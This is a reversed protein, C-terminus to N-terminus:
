CGDGQQNGSWNYISLSFNGWDGASDFALTSSGAGFDIIADSTLTLTGLKTSDTDGQSFGNLDFKGSGGLSMNAGGKIQNAAAFLLTGSNNIVVSSTGGLAKNTGAGAAELTGESVTTTGTFSNNGSLTVTDATTKNLGNTGALTAGVSGNRLDFNGGNNTITGNNVRGGATLAGLTNSVSKDGLDLTGDSVTVSGSGLTGAGSLALTGNTITTGGSYTNNGTLNLRGPGSMTLSLSGSGGNVLTGAFTDIGSTNGTLTSAGAAGNQVTLTSPGSLTALTRDAGNTGLRTISLSFDDVALGDDSGAVNLDNWRIYFSTGSGIGSSSLTVGADLTASNDLANGDLNRATGTKVPATFDLGDVDSWTGTSLSTANTSYQFDLRDAAGGRNTEGGFRWQEGKYQIAVSVLQLGSNNTFAAGITTKLSNTQLGGFARDELGSAGYSYTNGATESGTGAAYTGNAGSTGSEAFGWGAPVNSNTTGTSALTNFNETYATTATTLTLSIPTITTPTQTTTTQANLGAASAFSLVAITTSLVSVRSNESISGSFRVHSHKQRVSNLLRQTTSPKM